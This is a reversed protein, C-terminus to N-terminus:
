EGDDDCVNECKAVKLKKANEAVIEKARAVLAKKNALFALHRIYFTASDTIKLDASLFGAEVLAKTDDDLLASQTHTMKNMEIKFRAVRM